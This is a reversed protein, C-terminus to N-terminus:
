KGGRLKYMLEAAAEKTLEMPEEEPAPLLKYGAKSAEDPYDRCIQDFMKQPVQGDKFRRNFIQFTTQDPKHDNWESMPIRDKGYLKVNTMVDDTAKTFLEDDWEFKISKYIRSLVSKELQDLKIRVGLAIHASIYNEIFCKETLM